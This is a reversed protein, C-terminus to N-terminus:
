AQVLLTQKADFDYEEFVEEPSRITSKVLEIFSVTDSVWSSKDNKLSEQMSAPAIRTLIKWCEFELRKGTLPEGRIAPLQGLRVFSQYLRLGMSHYTRIDPLTVPVTASRALKREFDERARRNFMLVLIRRPDQGRELQQLVHAVLTSTKGSGAVATVIAHGGHHNIVAQQEDTWQM